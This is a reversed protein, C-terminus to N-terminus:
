PAPATAKKNPSFLGRRAGSWNKQEPIAATNIENEPMAALAVLEAKQAATLSKSNEKKM